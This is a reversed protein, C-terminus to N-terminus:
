SGSEPVKVAAPDNLESRVPPSLAVRASLLVLSLPGRGTCVRPRNKGPDVGQRRRFASGRMAFLLAIRRLHSSRRNGHLRQGVDPAQRWVRRYGATTPLDPRPVSITRPVPPPCTGVQGGSPINQMPISAPRSAGPRDPLEAREVEMGVHDIIFQVGDFKRLQNTM